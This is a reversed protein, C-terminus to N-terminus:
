GYCTSSVAHEGYAQAWRTFALWSYTLPIQLANGLLPLGQPGPPLPGRAHHRTNTLKHVLFLVVFCLALVTFM